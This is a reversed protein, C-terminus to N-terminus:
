GGASTYKAISRTWAFRSVALFAVGLLAALVGQRWTLRGLLAQAPWTTMVALPIVYTFLVALGGRFVSSPLRAADLTSMILHQLNDVKVVHFATSVALIWISYLIATASIVVLVAAVVGGATPVRGSRVLGTALIILGALVDAARAFEFRSTSVLFQADAPKLLIFDLTGKRVHEVVGTLAPQMTGALVGKLLTFFGVVLLAENFVWGAMSTRGSYVVVIPVLVAATWFFALGWQLFFDARYQLTLLMSARAQIGLLRGYRVM